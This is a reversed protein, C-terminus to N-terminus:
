AIAGSRINAYDDRWNARNLLSARARENAMAQYPALEDPSYYRAGGDPGSYWGTNGAYSGLGVPELDKPDYVMSGTVWSPMEGVSGIDGGGGPFLRQGALKWAEGWRQEINPAAYKIFQEQQAPSMSRVAERAANQIQGHAKESGRVGMVIGAIAAAPGLWSSFANAPLTAGSAAAGGAAGANAGAGIFEGGAGLAEYAAISGAGAGAASGTATIAQTAPTVGLDAAYYGLAPELNLSLVEPAIAPAMATSASAVGPTVGLDAAYHGLTPTKNLAATAAKRGLGLYNYLKAAGMGLSTATGLGSITNGIGLQSKEADRQERALRERQESESMALSQDQALRDRALRENLDMEQQSLRETTALQEKGFALNQGLAQEALSLEQEKRKRDGSLAYLAPLSSAQRRIISEYDPVVSRGTLGYTQGFSGLGSGIAPFAYQAM